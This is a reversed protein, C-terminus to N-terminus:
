TERTLQVNDLGINALNAASGCYVQVGFKVGAGEVVNDTPCYLFNLDYIRNGFQFSRAKMARGFEVIMKFYRWPNQNIQFPQAVGPPIVVFGAVIGGVYASSYYWKFNAFYYRLYVDWVNVYDYYDMEIDVYQLGNAGAQWINIWGEFGFIGKPIDFWQYGYAVKGVGLPPALHLYRAGAFPTAGGGATAIELTAGADGGTQWDLVNSEFDENYILEGSNSPSPFRKPHFQNQINRISLAKMVEM